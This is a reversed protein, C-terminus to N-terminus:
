LRIKGNKLNKYSKYMQIRTKISKDKNYAFSDLEKTNADKFQEAQKECKRYSNKTVNSQLQGIMKERQNLKELQLDLMKEDEEVTALM